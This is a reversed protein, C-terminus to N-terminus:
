AFHIFGWYWRNISFTVPSLSDALGAIPAPYLLRLHRWLRAKWFSMRQSQPMWYSPLFGHLWHWFWPAIHTKSLRLRFSPLTWGLPNTMYNERPSMQASVVHAPVNLYELPLLLLQDLFETRQVIMLKSRLRPSPLLRLLAIGWSMVNELM